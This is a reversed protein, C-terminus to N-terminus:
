GHWVQKEGVGRRSRVQLLLNPPQLLQDSLLLMSPLTRHRPAQPSLPLYAPTCRAHPVGAERTHIAQKGAERQPM